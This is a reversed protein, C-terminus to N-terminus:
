QAVRLTLAAYSPFFFFGSSKAKIPCVTFLKVKEVFIFLASVVLPSLKFPSINGCSSQM